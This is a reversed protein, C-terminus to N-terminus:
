YGIPIYDGVKMLVKVKCLELQDGYVEQHTSSGFQNDVLSDRPGTGVGM